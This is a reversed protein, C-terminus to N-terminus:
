NVRISTSDERNFETVEPDFEDENPINPNDIDADVEIEGRSVLSRGILDFSITGEDNGDFQQKSLYYVLYNRNERESTFVLDPDRAFDEGRVRIFSSNLLYELGIPFRVKLLIGDDDLQDIDVVVFTRDGVDIFSPTAKVSVFAAGFVGDSSGDGCAAITLLLTVALLYRLVKM